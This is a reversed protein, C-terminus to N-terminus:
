ALPPNPTLDITKVHLINDEQKSCALVPSDGPVPEELTEIREQTGAAQQFFSRASAFLFFLSFIAFTPLKM